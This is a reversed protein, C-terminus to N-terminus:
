SHDKTTSSPISDDMEFDVYALQQVNPLSYPKIAEHLPHINYVAIDERSEFDAVIVHDWSKETRLIDPGHVLALMGPINGRMGDLGATWQKSIEPTFSDKWRFMVIHRIM